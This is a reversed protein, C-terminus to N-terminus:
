HRAHKLKYLLRWSYCTSYKTDKAFLISCKSEGQFQCYSWSLALGAQIDDRCLWSSLFQWICNRILRSLFRPASSQAGHIGNFLSMDRLPTQISSLSDLRNALRHCRVVANPIKAPLDWNTDMRRIVETGTNVCVIVGAHVMAIYGGSLFCKGTSVCSALSFVVKWWFRWACPWWLM